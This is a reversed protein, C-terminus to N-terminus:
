SPTPEVMMIVGYYLPFSKLTFTKEVFSPCVMCVINYGGIIPKYCEAFTKEAFHGSRLLRDMCTKERSIEGSYPIITNCMVNCCNLTM